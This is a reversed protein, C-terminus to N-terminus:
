KFYYSLGLMVTNNYTKVFTDDDLIIFFSPNVFTTVDGTVRAKGYYTYIYDLRCSLCPLISQELGLGIRWAVKDKEESLSLALSGGEIDGVDSALVFSDSNLDLDNIAFGVRGYLMSTPTLLVGPRLDLGYQFQNLKTHTSNGTVIAYTLFQGVIGNPSGLTFDDEVSNYNKYRALDVFIEGGFYFQNWAQGYGAFIAGKLSNSTKLANPGDIHFTFVELDDNSDDFVRFETIQDQVVSTSTGGFSGGLYFGDFPSDHAQAFSTMCSLGLTALIGQLNTKMM